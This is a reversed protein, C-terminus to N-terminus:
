PVRGGAGLAVRGHATWWLAVPVALGLLLALTRPSVGAWPPRGGQVCADTGRWGVQRQAMMQAGWDSSPLTPYSRLM